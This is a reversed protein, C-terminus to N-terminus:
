SSLVRGSALVGCSNRENWDKRMMPSNIAILLCPCLLTATYLANAGLEIGKIMSEACMALLPHWRSRCVTGDLHCVASLAVSSSLVDGWKNAGDEWPITIKLRSSAKPHAPASLAVDSEM